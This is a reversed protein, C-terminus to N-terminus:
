WCGGVRYPTPIVPLWQLLVCSGQSHTESTCLYFVVETNKYTVTPPTFTELFIHYSRMTESSGRFSMMMEWLIPHMLERARWGDVDAYQSPLM